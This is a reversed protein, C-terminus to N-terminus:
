GNPDLFDVQYNAYDAVLVNGFADVTLSSPAAFGHPCLRCNPDGQGNSFISVTGAPTVKEVLNNNVDAVFVNGSIDVALGGPGNFGSAFTTVVGAVSIKRILNDGYDAVYV